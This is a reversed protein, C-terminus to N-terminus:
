SGPDSISRAAVYATGPVARSRWGTRPALHANIHSLEPICDAVLDIAHAGDLFVRSATDALFGMQRTYLERWTPQNDETYGTYRQDIFLAEPDDFGPEGFRDAARQAAHAQADDIMAHNLGAAQPTGPEHRM